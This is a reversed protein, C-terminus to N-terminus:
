INLNEIDRHVVVKMNAILTELQDKTMRARIVSHGSKILIRYVCNDGIISETYKTISIESNLQDNLPRVLETESADETLLCMGGLLVVTDEKPVFLVIMKNKGDLGPGIIRLIHGHLEKMFTAYFELENIRVM